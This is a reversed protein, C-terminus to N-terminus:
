PLPTPCPPGGVRRRHQQEGTAGTGPLIQAPLGPLRQPRRRKELPDAVYEEVGQWFEADVRIRGCSACVPLTSELQGVRMLLRYTHRIIVAGIILIIVSEFLSERWNIPTAPGGLLVYPIDLIEDIWIIAIIFLIATAEYLSVRRALLNTAPQVM